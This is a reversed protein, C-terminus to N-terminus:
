HKTPEDLPVTEVFEGAMFLRKKGMDITSAFPVPRVNTFTIPLARSYQPDPGDNVQFHLHPQFGDGSIGLKALVQGQKVREGKKVQVSGHKLHVYTSYEGGAHELIVLNGEAIRGSPDKEWMADLVRVAFDQRSEGEKIMETEPIDNKVRVVLGDAVALVDSGFAYYDKPKTGKGRFSSGHKGIKLLDLAFEHAPRTRHHSRVSSSAGVYWRGNLPFRFVNKQTYQRIEINIRADYSLGKADSAFVTIRIADPVHANSFSLLRHGAMVASGPSLERTPSLTVGEDLLKSFLFITDQTQMVGPKAFYSKYSAWRKEYHRFPIVQLYVREGYELASIEMKVLTLVTKSRNIIAINQLMVDYFGIRRNNENLYLYESPALRIEIPSVKIIEAKGDSVAPASASVLYFLILYLQKM